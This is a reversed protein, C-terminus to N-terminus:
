VTYLRVVRATFKLWLMNIRNKARELLSKKEKEFKNGCYICFRVNEENEHGCKNCRM